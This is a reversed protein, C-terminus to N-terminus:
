DKIILDLRMKLVFLYQINTLLNDRELHGMDFAIFEVIKNSISANAGYGIEENNSIYFQITHPLKIQESKIRELLDLIM